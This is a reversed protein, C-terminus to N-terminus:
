LEKRRRGIKKMDEQEGRNIGLIDSSSSSRSQFGLALGCDYTSVM